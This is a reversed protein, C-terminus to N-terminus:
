VAEMIRAYLVQWALAAVQPVVANGLAMLREKRHPVRAETRPPEWEHQAEGRGAPWRHADLGRPLGDPMGGVGALAIGSGADAPEKRRRPGLEGARRHRGCADTNGLAAARGDGSREATPHEARTNGSGGQGVELGSVDPNAQGVGISEGIGVAVGRGAREGRADARESREGNSDAVGEGRAVARRRQGRQQAAVAGAGAADAMGEGRSTAGGNRSRRRGGNSAGGPQQERVGDADALGERAERAVSPVAVGSVWEPERRQQTVGRADAVDCEGGCREADGAGEERGTPAGDTRRWADGNERRERMIRRSYALVFIRERRHPAGVDSARFRDWVADYGLAALAGLVEAFDWGGRSTTLPPVNEVFVFRPRLLDVIRRYERWLSSKEGAFGARKGALSLDQCPFGGCIIDVRALNEGVTCVDDYRVANPYHKALVSRCFESKEVQWVVHGGTAHEVGLELGGIGSFLSGIAPGRM